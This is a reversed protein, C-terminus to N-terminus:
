VDSAEKVVIPADAQETREYLIVQGDKVEPILRGKITISDVMLDCFAIEAGDPLLVKLGSLKFGGITTLRLIPSERCGIDMKDPWPLPMTLKLFGGALPAEVTNAM